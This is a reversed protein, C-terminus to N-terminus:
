AEAAGVSLNWPAKEKGYCLLNINQKQFLLGRMQLLENSVRLLSPTVNGRHVPHLDGDLLLFSVMPFLINLTWARVSLCRCPQATTNTSAYVDVCLPWSAVKLLINNETNFTIFKRLPNTKQKPQLINSFVSFELDTKWKQEAESPASRGRFQKFMNLTLKTHVHQTTVTLAMDTLMYYLIFVIKRM